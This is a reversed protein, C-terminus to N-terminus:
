LKTDQRTSDSLRRLPQTVQAATETTGGDSGMSGQRLVSSPGADGTQGKMLTAVRQQNQLRSSM